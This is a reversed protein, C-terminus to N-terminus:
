HTSTLQLMAYQCFRHRQEKCVLISSSSTLPSAIFYVWLNIIALSSLLKARISQLDSLLAAAKARNQQWKKRSCEVQGSSSTKSCIQGLRDLEIMSEDAKKVQEGIWEITRCRYIDDKFAADLRFNDVVSSIQLLIDHLEDTEGLLRVLEKPRDSLNRFTAVIKGTSKIAGAIAILSVTISLPDMGSFITGKLAALSVRLQYHRQYDKSFNIFFVVNSTETEEASTKKPPLFYPTPFFVFHSLSYRSAYCTQVQVDNARNLHECQM